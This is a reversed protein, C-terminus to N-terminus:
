GKAPAPTEAPAASLAAVEQTLTVKEAELQAIKTMAATLTTPGLPQLSSAVAQDVLRQVYTPMDQAPVFGATGANLANYALRAKHLTDLNNGDDVHVEFRM